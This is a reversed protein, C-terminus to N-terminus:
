NDRRHRYNQLHFLYFANCLLRVRIEMDCTARVLCIEYNNVKFSDGGVLCGLLLLWANTTFDSSISEFIERVHDRSFDRLVRIFQGRERFSLSITFVLKLWRKNGIICRTRSLRRDYNCVFKRNKFARSFLLSFAQTSLATISRYILGVESFQWM